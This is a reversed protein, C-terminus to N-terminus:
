ALRRILTSHYYLWASRRSLGSTRVSDAWKTSQQVMYEVQQLSNGDPAVFVGLSKTGKSVELRELVIRNGSPDIMTVSGPLNAIAKYRPHNHHWHFDIFCWHSKRPELAGGTARLSGAWTDVAAQISELVESAAQVKSSAHPLDTDDVFSYAALHVHEASIASTYQVGFGLGRLLDLVPSSLVAWIAPGAGNGQGVGHIVEQSTLSARSHCVTSDGFATRIFHHMNQTTAFM